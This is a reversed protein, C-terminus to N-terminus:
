SHKQKQALCIISTGFPLNVYKLLVAEFRLLLIFFRNFFEPLFVYALNRKAQPFIAKRFLRYVLVAPFVFSVLYSIKIIRFDAQKLKEQLEGALYRRQHSLARDHESWLFRYAPVTVLLYGGQKLVRESEKIAKFDDVLHELVDLAVVLNFYNDAFNIKEASGLVLNNFGKKQCFALAEPSIDLGVVEGWEGLVELNGGTGCGVELIQNETTKLFRKLFSKLVFRRGVHWWYFQEFQDLKQYEKSEM